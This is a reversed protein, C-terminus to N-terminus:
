AARDAKTSFSEGCGCADEVNPNRFVFQQNLGQSTFDIETGDVQPLSEADVFVKVGASEFVVDDPGVATAMDVVYAFGTCGSKRVGFRLGLTGPTGSQYSRIRDAAAPTLTIAM